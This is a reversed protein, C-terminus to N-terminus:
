ILNSIIYIFTQIWALYRFINRHFRKYSKMTKCSAICYTCKSPLSFHFRYINFSSFYMFINLRRPSFVLMLVSINCNWLIQKDCTHISLTHNLQNSEEDSTNDVHHFCKIDVGLKMHWLKLAEHLSLWNGLLFRSHPDLSTENLTFHVWFIMTPENILAIM